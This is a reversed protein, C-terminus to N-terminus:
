AEEASLTQTYRRYFGRVEQLLEDTFDRRSQGASFRLGDPLLVLHKAIEKAADLYKVVMSPSMVLSQGTNTFGEGAGGEAPFERAPDLSDVGTLERVTYTYEANNLRRLVVRGPDGAHAQAEAKLFNGLWGAIVAREAETPQAVEQPPMQGDAIVEAARQWHRITQRMGALSGVSSLDVDGELTDGAHCEHCYRAVLDVAASEADSAELPVAVAGCLAAAGAVVLTSFARTGM